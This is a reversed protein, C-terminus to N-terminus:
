DDAALGECRSEIERAHAEVVSFSVASERVLALSSVVLCSVGGVLLLWARRHLSALWWITLAAALGSASLLSAAAYLSVMAIRLIRARHFEHAACDGSQKSREELLRHIEAHVAEYRASTSVLLLGVGPLILLPTVWSVTESM